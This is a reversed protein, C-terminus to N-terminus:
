KGEGLEKIISRANELASSTIFGAMTQSSLMAADRIIQKVEASLRLELRYRKSKPKVTKQKRIEIIQM